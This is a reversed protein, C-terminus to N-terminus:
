GGEHRSTNRLSTAISAMTHAIAEHAKMGRWIAVLLIVYGALMGVMMVLWILFFLGGALAGPGQM